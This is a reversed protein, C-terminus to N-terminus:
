DTTTTSFTYYRVIISGIGINSLSNTFAAGIFHSNTSSHHSGGILDICGVRSVKAASSYLYRGHHHHFSSVVFLLM